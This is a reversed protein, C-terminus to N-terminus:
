ASYFNLFHEAALGHYLPYVLRNIGPKKLLPQLAELVRGGDELSLQPISCPEVALKQTLDSPLAQLESLLEQWLPTPLYKLSKSHEVLRERASVMFVDDEPLSTSFSAEQDENEFNEEPEDDFDLLEFETM